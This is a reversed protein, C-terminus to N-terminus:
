GGIGDAVGAILRISDRPDLALKELQDLATAYRRTQAPKDLFTCAASNQLFVVAPNAPDPLEVYTVNDGLLPHEGASFPLVRVTVNRRYSVLVLHELQARLVGPGGVFRRLAGEDIVVRLDLPEPAALREQRRQQVRLLRGTACGPDAGAAMSCRAYEETQLLSPVVDSHFSRLATAGAELGIYTDFGPQLIKGYEQWWGVRKSESALTRLREFEDAAAGYFELMLRVDSTRVPVKGLEIQSIKGQSCDLHAAVERHTKGAAERLGRLETGLRRRDLTPNGGM